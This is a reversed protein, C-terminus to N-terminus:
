YWVSRVLMMLGFLILIIGAIKNIWILIVSTIKTRIWKAMFVKLSDTIMIMFIISGLFAIAEQDSLFQSSVRTTIISLWFIITFPNISNVMLGRLWLRFYGRAGVGKKDFSITSKKVFTNMGVGMLVIGGIIGMWFVFGKNHVYPSIHKIFYLGLAVLVIDSVWIGSAAIMGARAGKEISAQILVIFIPGLLFALGIGLLIGELILDM